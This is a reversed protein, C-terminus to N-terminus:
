KELKNLQSVLHKHVSSLRSYDKGAVVLKDIQVNVKEIEKLLYKVLMEKKM